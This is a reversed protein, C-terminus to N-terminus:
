RGRFPAQCGSAAAPRWGEGWPRIFDEPEVGLGDAVRTIYNFYAVVQTADHVAVDDFGAARLADLDGPRMDHQHHTLRAAFACLAGDAATLDAARWDRVVAHVFADAEAATPYQDAVEARLDHAHAQTWYFCDLEASVVTALLERQARSLPSPGFMLARYLEMSAAMAPPNVSMIHVIHWVRGARKLASDFERKLPGTAEDIPVQRIWPM